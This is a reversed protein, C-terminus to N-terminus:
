MYVRIECYKIGNINHPNEVDLDSAFYVFICKGHPSKSNFENHEELYVAKLKEYEGTVTSPVVYWENIVPLEEINCINSPLM